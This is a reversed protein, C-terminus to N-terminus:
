GGPADRPQSPAVPAELTSSQQSCGEHVSDHLKAEVSSARPGQFTQPFDREVGEVPPSDGSCKQDTPERTTALTYGSLAPAVQSPSMTGRQEVKVNRLHHDGHSISTDSLRHHRRL